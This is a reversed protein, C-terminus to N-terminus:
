GQSEPDPLVSLLLPVLMMMGTCRTTTHTMQQAGLCRAVLRRGDLRKNCRSPTTPATATTLRRGVIRSVVLPGGKWAPLTSERLKPVPFGPTSVPPPTPTGPTDPMEEIGDDDVFDGPVEDDLLYEGDQTSDHTAGQAAQAARRASSRLSYRTQGSSM